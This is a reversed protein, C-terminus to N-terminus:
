FAPQLFGYIFNRFCQCIWRFSRLQRLADVAEKLYWSVKNHMNISDKNKKTKCEYLDKAEQVAIERPVTYCGREAYDMFQIEALRKEIVEKSSM